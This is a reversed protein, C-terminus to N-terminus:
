AAMLRAVHARTATMLVNPNYGGELMSVLKGGCYEDALEMMFATMKVFDDEDLKLGGVPDAAHADFGCSLLIFDPQCAVASARVLKEFETRYAAGKTGKEVFSHWTAGIGAELGKHSPHGCTDPFLGQQHSSVVHIDPDRIFIAATGDAPHVDWDVILVRKYGHRTQAFRACAAVNNFICFGRARDPGAHHGPPRVAAFGNRLEGSAVKDVLTLAGAASGLAVEYSDKRVMTEHSRDLARKGKEFAIRVSEVYDSEHVRGVWPLGLNYNPKIWKLGPLELCIDRAKLHRMRGPNEPHTRPTEHGLYLPDWAYGTAASM